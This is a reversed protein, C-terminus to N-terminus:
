ACEFIGNARQLEHIYVVTSAIDKESGNEIRPMNGFLWRYAHVGNDVALYHARDSHHNSEYIKDVLHPGEDTGVANRGHCAICDRDYAVSGKVAPKSLQPVNVM